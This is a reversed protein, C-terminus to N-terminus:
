RVDGAPVAVRSPVAGARLAAQEASDLAVKDRVYLPLAQAAPMGEGRLLVPVSLRAVATATPM